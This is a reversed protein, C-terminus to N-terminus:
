FWQQDPNRPIIIWLIIYLLIGTGWILTIIIWLIRIIVPDISLYEAIGGCVGGLIRDKGSRYLRKITSTQSVSQVNPTENMREHHMSSPHQISKTAHISFFVIYGLVIFLFLIAIINNNVFGAIMPFFFIDINKGLILFINALVWFLITLGIATTLPTLWKFADPAKRNGYETYSMLLSATFLWIISTLFLDSIDTFITNGTEMGIFAFIWIIIGLVILGAISSLMPGIIGFTRQFWTEMQKGKQDFRESIRKGEKEMRGGINQMEEAFDDFRKKIRDEPREETMCGGKSNNRNLM